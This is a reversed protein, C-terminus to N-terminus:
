LTQHTICEASDDKDDVFEYKLVGIKMLHNQTKQHRTLGDKRIICGCECTIKESIKDKNRKYQEKNYELVMDRNQVYREKRQESLKDKNRDAYEKKYKSIKDKNNEYYEKKHEKRQEETIYTRVM